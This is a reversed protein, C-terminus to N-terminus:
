IMKFLTLFPEFFIVYNDIEIYEGYKNKYCALAECLFDETVNLYEAMEYLSTCGNEYAKVIGILGIRKNYALLRAKYEQKRNMVIAQNTIDGDTLYYHGLEEALICAKEKLSLISKSLAIVNDSYLGKIRPSIFHYRDIIEVGCDYAEQELEEDYTLINM